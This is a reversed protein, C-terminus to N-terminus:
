RRLTWARLEVGRSSGLLTVAWSLPFADGTIFSTSRPLVVMSLATQRCAAAEIRTL